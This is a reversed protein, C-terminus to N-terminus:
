DTAKAHRYSGNSKPPRFLAKEDRTEGLDNCPGHHRASAGIHDGQGAASQERVPPQGSGSPYGNQGSRKADYDHKLAAVDILGMLHPQNDDQGDYLLEYAYSQGRGGRHVLLYEMETLRALHVKLATDSWHTFARVDRRSFRYDARKMARVQCREGVWTVLLGLLKRTQPPLEDLTRGLVEHALRNATAITWPSKSM